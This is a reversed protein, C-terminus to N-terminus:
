VIHKIAVSDALILLAFYLPLTRCWGLRVGIKSMLARLCINPHSDNSSLPYTTKFQVSVHPDGSFVPDSISLARPFCWFGARQCALTDILSCSEGRLALSGPYTILSFWHKKKELCYNHQILLKPQFSFCWMLWKRRSSCAYYYYDYILPLSPSVSREGAQLCASKKNQFSIFANHKKLVISPPSSQKGWSCNFYMISVHFHKKRKGM